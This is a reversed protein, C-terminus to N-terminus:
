TRENRYIVGGTSSTEAAAGGREVQRKIWERLLEAPILRRNGVRFNPLPDDLRDMLAYVTPRSVGLAETAEGPAYALREHLIIRGQERVSEAPSIATM